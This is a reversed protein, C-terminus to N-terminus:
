WHKTMINGLTHRVWNHLFSRDWVSAALVEVKVAKKLNSKPKANRM